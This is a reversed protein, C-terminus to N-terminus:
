SNNSLTILVRFILYLLCGAIFLIYKILKFILKIIIFIGKNKM